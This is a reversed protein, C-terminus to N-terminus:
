QDALLGIIQVNQRAILQLAALQHETALLQQEAIRDVQSNGYAESQYSTILNDAIRMQESLIPALAEARAKRVTVDRIVNYVNLTLILTLLVVAVVSWPRSRNEM